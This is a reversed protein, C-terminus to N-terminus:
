IHLAVKIQAKLTLKFILNRMKVKKKKKMKRFKMVKLNMSLKYIKCTRETLRQIANSIKQNNRLGQLGKWLM